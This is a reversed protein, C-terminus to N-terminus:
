TTVAELGRRPQLADFAWLVRRIILVFATLMACDQHMDHQIMSPAALPRALRWGEKVEAADAAEKPPHCLQM